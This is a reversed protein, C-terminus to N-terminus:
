AEQPINEQGAGSTEEGGQAAAESHENKAEENLEEEFSLVNNYEDVEGLLASIEAPTYQREAMIEIDDFLDNQVVVILQQKALELIALFTAIIEYKGSVSLFLESFMIRLDNNNIKNIIGYMKDKISFLMPSLHDIEHTLVRVSFDQWVKQFAKCLFDMSANRVVINKQQQFESNIIHRNIQERTLVYSFEEERELLTQALNKFAKYEILRQLLAKREAEAELLAEQDVANTNPLLMKSKMEILIAAMVLFESAIELDMNQMQRLYDLYATTIESINVQYIDLKKEEILHLLLDFPGEFKELKIKFQEPAPKTITMQM